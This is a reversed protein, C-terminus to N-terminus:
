NKFEYISIAAYLAGDSYWPGKSFSLEEKKYSNDKLICNIDSKSLGIRYGLMYLSTRKNMNRVM